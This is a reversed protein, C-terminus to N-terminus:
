RRGPWLTADCFMCEGRRVFSETHGFVRCRLRSMWM